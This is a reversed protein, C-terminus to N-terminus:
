KEYLYLALGFKASARRFAMSEANSSPDGYALEKAERQGTSKNFVERKLEETGTAERYVLGDRTPVSLRGILFLRDSSLQLHRIEWSWGLCYKDLIQITRYWPLYQANGREKIRCLLNPPLPRKLAEQIQQLSWEGPQTPPQLTQRPPATQSNVPPPATPLNMPYVITQM